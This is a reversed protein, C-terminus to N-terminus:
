STLEHATELLADAQEVMLEELAAAVQAVTPELLMRRLAFEIEFLERLRRVFQTAALSHGGIRFFNEFVGVQELGLLEAWMEAVVQEYETRPAVYDVDAAFLETARTVPAAEVSPAGDVVRYSKRDYPYLPLRARPRQVPDVGAWDIEHGRVHLEGVAALLVSLDDIDRVLSPVAIGPRDHQRLLSKLMGNLAPHPGIEIFSTVNAEIMAGIADAFRVPQIVQDSWYLGNLRTGDIREGTVTSYFAVGGSRPEICPMDAVFEPLCDLMLPSHFAYRGPLRRTMVQEADLRALFADVAATQGSILTWKPGNTGALHVRPPLELEAAPLNVVAMCGNDRLRATAKARAAIIQAATRLELAGSVHAAAIEGVSHGVVAAPTIGWSRWLAALAVQLAFLVPQATGTDALAEADGGRDLVAFTSWGLEIRLERDVALLADRFVPQQRILKRGMGVWQNGQGTFVFGVQGPGSRPVRGVAAGLPVSGAAIATLQDALDAHDRAPVAVRFPHQARRATSTQALTAVPPAAGDRLLELWGDVLALTSQESRGSISVLYPKEPQVPPQTRTAAVPPGTLVAHANTGGFGFSSVGALARGGHAPWERSTTPVDFPLDAFAIHKSPSEFNLNAPVQGHHLALATKVLGTIGAAAELHGVVTKASGVLFEREGTRHAAFVTGLARAEIADGLITGTGHAEVYQVENPDVGARRYAKRLVDVQSQYSPATLGNTRGDQNVASGLLVAYVRDGDRQAQALPKLVVAASGEGRVYGDARDDFTKCRGDAALMGADALSETIHPDLTLNVGGVVAADCDGDHLSRLALHLAVLSSSCATDVSVSPGRLDYLYALRNAAISAANGTVAAIPLGAHPDAGIGRAYEGATIGVFTGTATGALREIPVGADEFADAVTEALLRQQPDMVAAEADSIGFYNADFAYPDDLFSGFWPRRREDTPDAAADARPWDYRGRPAKGVLEKGHWLTEWLKEPGRVGAYACGIGIIAVPEQGTHPRVPESAVPEREASDQTLSGPSDQAAALGEALAHVTPYEWPLDPPLPKGMWTSIKGVFVLAVASTLGFSSFPESLAVDDTAIDLLESLTETLFMSIEDATRRAMEASM